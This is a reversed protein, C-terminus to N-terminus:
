VQFTITTLVWLYVFLSCTMYGINIGTTVNM